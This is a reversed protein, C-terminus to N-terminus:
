GGSAKDVARTRQAQAETILRYSAYYKFINRVYTTTESGIKEAVVIEVNNFWVDPNLGREAALSRMKAINAPGANYSAFAFLPRDKDSFHADSFYRAMLQDLYKAGAHINSETIKIDGVKLEKGTAPMLQMIGVAGVRSKADQNLQSEQFGQAALMLPDFGYQQGYKEFLLVTQQFRKIEASNTNNRIQKIGQMYQKLRVEAVSQKKIYNVYFDSIAQQLQPSQKRIAWGIYGGERVAINDHVTIRPLVQAWMRAKWDDVILIQLVGANLMEMADEDELADPLLVLRMQPKGSKAFRANLADLSDYYSSSRRVQVAKGSLDDISSLAPSKPGTVVLESTPKRANATVFDVTKQREQTVTLNGAAIDGTGNLLGPLLRDRTTPILFVTLPRGDLRDAYKKNVYREFDRAFEATLGREHGRDNFYLTRSYPVLVRIIHRNLMADFDGFWARNTLDLKRTASAPGPASAGSAASPAAGAVAPQAAPTASGAVLSGLGFASVVLFHRVLHM